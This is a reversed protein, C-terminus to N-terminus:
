WSPAEWSQWTVHMIGKCREKWLLLPDCHYICWYHSSHQHGKKWPSTDDHAFFSKCKWFQLFCHVWCFFTFSGRFFFCWKLGEVWLKWGVRGKVLRSRGQGLSGLWGRRAKSLRQSDTALYKTLEEDTLQAGNEQLFCVHRIEPHEFGYWTTCTTYYCVRISIIYILVGYAHLYVHTSIYVNHKLM